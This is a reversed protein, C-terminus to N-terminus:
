LSMVHSRWWTKEIGAVEWVVFASHFHNILGAGLFLRELFGGKQYTLPNRPFSSGLLPSFLPLSLSPRELRNSEILMVLITDAGRGGGLTMTMCDCCNKAIDLCRFSGNVLFLLVSRGRKDPGTTVVDEQADHWSSKIWFFNKFFFLYKNKFIHIYMRM